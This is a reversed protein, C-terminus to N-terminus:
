DTDDGHEEKLAMLKIEFASIIDSWTTKVKGERARNILDDLESEFNYM